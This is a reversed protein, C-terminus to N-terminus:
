IHEQNLVVDATRFVNSGRIAVGDRDFARAEGSAEVLNAILGDRREAAVTVHRGENAADHLLQPVLDAFDTPELAQCKPVKALLSL